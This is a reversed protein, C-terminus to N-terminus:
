PKIRIRALAVRKQVIILVGLIIIGALLTVLNYSQYDMTTILSFTFILISITKSSLPV